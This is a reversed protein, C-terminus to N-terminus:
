PEPGQSADGLEAKVRAIREAVRVTAAGAWKEFDPQKVRPRRVCHDIITTANIVAQRANPAGFAVFWWHVASGIGDHPVAPKFDAPPHVAWDRFRFLERVQAKIAKAAVNELRFSRVLTEAVRTARAAHSRKWRADLESMDRRKRLSGYFSDLAIAAGAVAVMSAKCEASLWARKQDDDHVHDSLRRRESVAEIAHAIAVDLWYPWTDLVVEVQDIELRGDATLRMGGAPIRLEGAEPFYIGM